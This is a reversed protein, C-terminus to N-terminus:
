HKLIQQFYLIPKERLINMKGVVKSGIPPLVM